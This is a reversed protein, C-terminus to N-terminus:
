PLREKKQTATSLKTPISMTVFTGKNPTSQIDLNGGLYELRERINFLGFGGRDRDPLSLKSVNFGIGDDQIMISIQKHSKMVLVEVQSAHAYKVINTLLERVGQYLVVRVEENLSIKPGQSTFTCNIGNKGQIQETLLSEIAAGLGIEYLLPNSLEFTLSRTDEMIRDMTDCQSELSTLVETDSITKQMSKLEFKALALRQAIDDHIGAAIRRREREEALSLELALSKLQEQYKQLNREADKRETIDRDVGRFGTLNAATDFIPVANSELWRWSGDKHRWRLVLNHWGNKQNVWQPLKAEIAQRDEDHMFNFSSKGALEDPSYGLIDKVAPNSYTHKAHLDISWIWDRSTEVFARITEEKERLAEMAAKRETIDRSYIAFRIVQGQPDIIPHVSNEFWHDEWQDEFCITKRKRVAEFGLAKRKEALDPSFHDYIITGIIDKRTKGLRSAMKDNSDIILGDRDILLVSDTTADLLARATKESEELAQEVKKRDTIELIIGDWLVDGNPQPQPRSMCDYWRVEGNVIHRLEQRWPQLTELSVRISEDCRDRDDPHILDSLMTGDRMIDEPEIDFLLRSGHNAYPFSHSGDPHVAYTYVMGPINVELRLYQEVRKNLAEETRKRDTIDEGSSLTGVIRNNEDKLVTNHWAIQREQGSKTLVPNEFYEVSEIEGKMIKEFIGKVKQGIGKSLFNDFWNKGIINNEEYGLLECGKRNILTVIGKADLVLFLVGAVDLYKQAKDREQCLEAEAKKCETIDEVTGQYYLINGADDRIAQASERIFLTTEDRKRWASELGIIQGEAKIRRKFESRPYDTEFGEQELNRATLEEFSSYGLMRVLAPNATLIRGDPTTQYLGVLSNEFIGRFREESKRLAKEAQKRETIDRYFAFIRQGNNELINASVDLDIITGDKCQHHTEFRHSNSSILKQIRKKIQDPSESAEIDMINMSLLEKRSYGLLNCYADNVELINGEANFVGFSDMATKLFMEYQLHTHKQKTIDRVFSQIYFHGSFEVRNLSVEVEFPTGDYRLHRWEFSQHQGELALRIKELAKDKSKQGDPQLMPSFRDYPRQGIIQEKTCGFMELTKPNCDIFRDTEVLFIADNANDFIARYWTKSDQLETRLRKIQSPTRHIHESQTQPQRTESRNQEDKVDKKGDRM